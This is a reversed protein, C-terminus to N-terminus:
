ATRVRRRLLDLKARGYGQRKILKVKHVHGEVIGNSWAETIAAEIASRDALMGNALGVFSPLTSTKADVLWTQFAALDHEHLLTRFRQTLAYGNALVPARDLVQQVALLEDATLGEPPRGLLRRLRRPDSRRQNAGHRLSKPPKAPRWSRVAELVLTRSGTYGREVLEQYLQCGNTCGARWRQQLM